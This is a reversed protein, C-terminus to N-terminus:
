APGGIGALAAATLAGVLTNLFNVADHDLLARRELAPGVLSEVVTGALAAAVVILGGIWPFLGVAVGLAAVIAAALLGAATGEVSVAGPTGPPAPRLNRLLFARRGLLQGIETGATDAAATALAAAFALTFLLPYLTTVAFM